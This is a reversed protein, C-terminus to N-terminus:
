RAAKGRPVEGPHYVAKAGALVDPWDFLEPKLKCESILRAQDFYHPSQPDGSVGFNLASAGRVKSGFEYVAVYSAGILGYRKSITRVFPIKITPSYYQTFVVGMPGPAGLSPLSPANDDFSLELLDILDERRQIRFVDAWPTRWDGYRGKLKDAATSLALLALKPDEAFRAKLTEAPYNLGYLEEYWAECLTAQTSEATVRCDWDLLHELYPAVKAALSPDSQKIAELHRAYKPLESQAWYVTTDYAAQQIDEFTVGQM